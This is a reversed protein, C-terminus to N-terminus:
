GDTIHVVEIHRSVAFLFQFLLEMKLARAFVAALVDIIVQHCSGSATLSACYTFVCVLSM